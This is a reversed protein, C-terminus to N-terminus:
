RPVGKDHGFDIDVKLRAKRVADMPIRYTTGDCEVIVDDGEVGKITGTFASREDIPRSTKIKTDSGVFRVFHERTRLPREIGPSSVELTFPGRLDDNDELAESVWENAAAVADLDIGGDKDLFVRVIPQHSAGAIEVAVLEHGHEVAIPELLEVLRAALDPGSM